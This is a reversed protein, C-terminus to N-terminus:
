AVQADNARMAASGTGHSARVHLRATDLVPRDGDSLGPQMSAGRARLVGITEPNAGGGHRITDDPLGRNAKVGVFEGNLAGPGASAEVDAGPIVAGPAQLGTKPCSADSAPSSRPVTSRM